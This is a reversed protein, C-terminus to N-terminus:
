ATDFAHKCAKTAAQLAAASAASAPASSKAASAAPPSEKYAAALADADAADSQELNPM